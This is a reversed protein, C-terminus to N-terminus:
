KLKLGPNISNKIIKTRATQNRDQKACRFANLLREYFTPESVTPFPFEIRVYTDVDNKAPIDLAKTVEVSIENATVEPNCIVISFTRTEYKFSPVKHGNRWLVTLMDLDKRTDITYKEFKSSTSIDGLQLFYEKNRKCM